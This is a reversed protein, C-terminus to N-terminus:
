GGRGRDPLGAFFQGAQLQAPEGSGEELGFAAKSREPVAQPGAAATRDNRAFM